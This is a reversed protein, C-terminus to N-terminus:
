LIKINIFFGLFRGILDRVSVVTIRVSFSSADKLSAIVAKCFTKFLYIRSM